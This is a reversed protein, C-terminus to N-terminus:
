ERSSEGPTFGAFIAKSRKGNKRMSQIDGRLWAPRDTVPHTKLWDRWKSLYASDPNLYKPSVIHGEHNKPLCRNEAQLRELNRM